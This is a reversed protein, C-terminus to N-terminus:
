RLYQYASSTGNAVTKVLGSSTFWGQSSDASHVASGSFGTQGQPYFSISGSSGYATGDQYYTWSMTNYSPNLEFAAGGSTTPTKSTSYGLSGTSSVSLWPGYAYDPYDNMDMIIARYLSGSINVGFEATTGHDGGIWNGSWTANFVTFTWVTSGNAVVRTIGQGNAQVTPTPGVTSVASGNIVLGM